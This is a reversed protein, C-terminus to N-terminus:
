TRYRHFLIEFNEVMGKSYSLNQESLSDNSIERESIIIAGFVQQVANRLGNEQALEFTSGIGVVRVTLSTSSSEKTSNSACSSFLVVFVLILLINKM